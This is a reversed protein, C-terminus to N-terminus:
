VEIMASRRVALRNGCTPESAVRRRESSRLGQGGIATQHADRLFVASRFGTLLPVASFARRSAVASNDVSPKADDAECEFARFSIRFGTLTVELLSFFV